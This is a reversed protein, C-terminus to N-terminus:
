PLFGSRPDAVIRSIKHREAMMRLVPAGLPQNFKIGSSPGDSWIVRSWLPNLMPFTISVLDGIPLEFPLWVRCGSYSLDSVEANTSGLRSNGLEGEIVVSQRVGDRRDKSPPQGRQSSRTSIM